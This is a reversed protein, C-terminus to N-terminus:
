QLKRIREVSIIGDLKKIEVVIKNFQVLDHVDMRFDCIAQMDLNTEIEAHSINVDFSSIISSIEALVGKHDRCVARLHVTYTNKDKVAWEVSILRESEM